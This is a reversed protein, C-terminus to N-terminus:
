VFDAARGDLSTKEFKSEEHSTDVVRRIEQLTVNLRYIM